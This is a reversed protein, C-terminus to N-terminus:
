GDDPERYTRIVGVESGNLAAEPEYDGGTTGFNALDLNGDERM